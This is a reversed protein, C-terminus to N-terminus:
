ETLPVIIQLIVWSIVLRRDKALENHAKGEFLHAQGWYKETMM